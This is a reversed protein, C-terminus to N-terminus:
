KKGLSCFSASRKRQAGAPMDPLGLTSSGRRSRRGEPPAELSNQNVNGVLDQLKHWKQIHSKQNKMVEDWHEKGRGRAFMVGGLAMFGLPRDPFFINGKMGSFYITIWSILLIEMWGLNNPLCVLHGIQLFTPTWLRQEVRALSFKSLIIKYIPAHM